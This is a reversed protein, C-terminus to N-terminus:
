YSSFKKMSIQLWRADMKAFVHESSDAVKTKGFFFTKFYRLRFANYCQSEHCRFKKILFIVSHFGIVFNINVRKSHCRGVFHSFFVWIETKLICNIADRRFQFALNEVPNWFQNSTAEVSLLQENASIEVMFNWLKAKSLSISSLAALDDFQSFLSDNCISNEHKARIQKINKKKLKM